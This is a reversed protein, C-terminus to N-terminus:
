RALFGKKRLAKDVRNEFIRQHKTLVRDVGEADLAHITPAFVLRPNGSGLNGGQEVMNRMRSAIGAPLVMEEPHLITPQIGPVEWQGGEASKAVAAFGEGIALVGASAAINEPFPVDALTNAAATNASSHAEEANTAKKKGLGLADLLEMTLKSEAYQLAIQIFSEIASAALQRWNAKGEVIFSALNSNMSNLMNIFAHEVQDNLQRWELMQKRLQATASNALKLHEASIQGDYKKEIELQQIKLKQYEGVAQQFAAKQQPSGLLGNFTADGLKKVIDIQAALRTNAETLADSKEKELTRLSQQTAQEETIYGLAVALRTNHEAESDKLEQTLDTIRAADESAKRFAEAAKDAEQTASQWYLALAQAPQNAKEEDAAEKNAKKVADALKGHAQALRTVDVIETKQQASNKRAHADLQEQRALEAGLADHAMERQAKINDLVNSVRLLVNFEGEAIKTARSTTSTELMVQALNKQSRELAAAILNIKDQLEYAPFDKLQNLDAKLGDSLDEFKKGTSEAVAHAVSDFVRITEIGAGAMEARLAAAEGKTARVLRVYDRQMQAIVDRGSQLLQDNIDEWEQTVNKLSVYEDYLERGKTILQGIVQLASIVALIPFAAEFAAGVAPLTALWEAVEGSITAGLIDFAVKIGNVAQKSAEAHQEMAASMAKAASKVAAVGEQTGSHIGSANFKAGIELNAM